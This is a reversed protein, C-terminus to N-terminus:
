ILEESKIPYIGCSKGAKFMRCINEVPVDDQFNHVAALLYGGGPALDRIRQCVEREVDDPTGHPLVNQTDIGGCFTIASGFEEKLKKTDAMAACSVQIPNLADIGIEILDPIAQYITGCSHYLLKAETMEKILAFYEKQYPKIMARYTRPSMILSTQTALDDGARFIDLYKGCRELFNATIRKQIDTIKRLLAHAFEKDTLLDTLFQEFGRLHCARQFINNAIVNGYIAYSSNEYLTKANEAVNTLRESEDPDPWSYTELDDITAEQLPSDMVVFYLSGEPRQWGIGWEDYVMHTGNEEYFRFKNLPLKAVVPRIDIELARMIREDVFPLTHLLSYDQTPEPNIGLHRALKKYGGTTISTSTCGNFIFPVRDPEEHNLSACVRERSTMQKMM